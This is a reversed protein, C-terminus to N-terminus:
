ITKLNLTNKTKFSDCCQKALAIGRGKSKKLFLKTIRAFSCLYGQRTVSALSHSWTGLVFSSFYCLTYMEPEKIKSVAM